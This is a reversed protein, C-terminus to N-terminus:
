DPPGFLSIQEYDTTSRTNEERTAAEYLSEQSLVYPVGGMEMLGQNGKYGHDWVLVKGWRHQLAATAGAWTGGKRYDASVVFSGCGSTYIYHNRTLARPTTFGDEPRGDTLLLLQGDMIAQLKATNKIRAQLADALYVM